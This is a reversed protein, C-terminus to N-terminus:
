TTLWARLRDACQRIQETSVWEEATHALAPDGPGYNVAPIGLETFRAVDTWGLKPEPDAGVADLFAAAEPRDLGPLAGAALDTVVVAFGDFVDRVHAVAEEASRDPAFRYNVTLEAADPVVNGAVGGGIRVATLGERYQLGNIVPQRPVYEQLRRLPEALAHIANDGLWSRASHARRGETQVVVRLTGQCGAEVQANSPEALVAFDAALWEPHRQALRRLGNAEEEIEEGDYFVYTVGRAPASVTAALHALVAVGGKMDASGLGVLREGALVGPLNAAAPVTDIHGALLVRGAGGGGTRAVVADGDRDVQLHGVARLAAELADALATETGSVSPTDVLAAALAVVDGTLDLGPTQSPIDDASPM